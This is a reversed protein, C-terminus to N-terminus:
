FINFFKSVACLVTQFYKVGHNSINYCWFELKDIDM